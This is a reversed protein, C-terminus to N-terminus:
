SAIQEDIYRRMTDFETKGTSILYRIQTLDTVDRNREFEHRAYHILEDRTGSKPIKNIARVIERWLGLARQQQIFHDLGVAPKRLRSPTKNPVAYLLRVSQRM